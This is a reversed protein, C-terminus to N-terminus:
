HSLAPHPNMIMLIEIASMEPLLDVFEKLKLRSHFTFAGIEHTPYFEKDNDSMIQYLRLLYMNKLKGSLGTVGIRDEIPSVTVFEIKKGKIIEEPLNVSVSSNVFRM